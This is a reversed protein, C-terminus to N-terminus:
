TRTTRAAGTAATRPASRRATAAAGARTPFCSRQQAFLAWPYLRSATTCTNSHTGAPGGHVNLILPVKQGSKYGVPHILLGDISMGDPGKWSVPEKRFSLMDRTQPNTDTLREPTGAASRRVWVDLPHESDQRLFALTAGSGDYGPASNMEPGQTVPEVPRGDVFVRHIHQATRQM